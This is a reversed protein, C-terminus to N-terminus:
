NNQAGKNSLADIVVVAILVFGKIADQYTAEIKLLTLANFMVGMVFLGILTRFASGSGGSLSTGGIVTAAVCYLALDTGYLASGANIRSAFLIGGFAAMFGLIVFIIMKNFRVNVGAMKAVQYNGGTAYLNRGMTTNKLLIQAVVFVIFFIIVLYPIGLVKGNGIEYIIDSNFNIPRGDTYTLAVGKLATMTAMTTIFANMGANAVLVGNILGIILGVALTIFIAPVIGIKQSLDIFLITSLAFTSSVSLDFEGCIIAFTMAFAVVGYVAIQILINTINDVSLFSQPKVIAMVVIILALFIIVSSRKSKEVFTRM